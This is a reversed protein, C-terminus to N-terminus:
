ASCGTQAGPAPGPPTRGRDGTATAGAPWVASLTQWGPGASESRFALTMRRDAAQRRKSPAPASM